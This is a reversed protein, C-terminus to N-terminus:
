PKKKNEKKKIIESLNLPNTGIVNGFLSVQITLPGSVMAERADYTVWWSPGNIRNTPAYTMLPYFHTEYYYWEDLVPLMIKDAVSRAKIFSALMLTSTLLIAVLVALM